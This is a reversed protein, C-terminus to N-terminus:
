KDSLIKSVINKMFEFGTKYMTKDTDTVDHLLSDILEDVNCATLEKLKKHKRQCLELDKIQKVLSHILFIYLTPPQVNSDIEDINERHIIPMSKSLTLMTENIINVETKKFIRCIQIKLSVNKIQQHARARNLLNEITLQKKTVICKAIIGTQKRRTIFEKEGVAFM